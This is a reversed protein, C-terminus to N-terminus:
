SKFKNDDPIHAVIDSIDCGLTNCIKDITDLTMPQNHRLMDLYYPNINYEWILRYQSIEREKIWKWFKDYTIAM